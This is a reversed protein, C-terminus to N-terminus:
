PSDEQGTGSHGDHMQVQRAREAEVAAAAEEYRAAFRQYAKAHEYEKQAAAAFEWWALQPDVSQKRGTYFDAMLRHYEKDSAIKAADVMADRVRESQRDIRADRLTNRIADFLRM